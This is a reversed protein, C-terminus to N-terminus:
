RLRDRDIIPNASGQAVLVMAGQQIRGANELQNNYPVGYCVFNGTSTDMVYVVVSAAPRNSARPFDVRGTLMLYDGGKGGTGLGDAANISFSAMMKGQRPYIVQCQLLGSNHDLMFLGETGDSIPGTALSYKKGVVAATADVMPYAQGDITVSPHGTPFLQSESTTSKTLATELSQNRGLLYASVTALLMLASVTVTSNPFSRRRTVKVQSNAPSEPSDTVESASMAFTESQRDLETPQPM